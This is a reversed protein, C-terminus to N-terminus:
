GDHLHNDDSEKSELNEEHSTDHTRAACKCCQSDSSCECDNLVYKSFPDFCSSIPAVLKAAENGM